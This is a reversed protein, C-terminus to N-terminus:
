LVEKDQQSNEFSVVTSGPFAAAARSITAVHEPTVEKRDRGTLNPVLWVKGFTESDLCVEVGLAKFSAIDEETLGPLQSVEITPLEEEPDEPQSEPTATPLPQQPITRKPKKPEPLPNGFLDLLPRKNPATKAKKNHKLWEVCVLEDSRACSGGKVYNRCRKDDPLAEYHPCSYNPTVKNTEM